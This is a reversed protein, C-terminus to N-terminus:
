WVIKCNPLWNEVKQKEEPSFNNGGLYLEKLSTLNGIEKPLTTLKNYELNLYTLNTLDGIEKLLTTLQNRFLNLVTM